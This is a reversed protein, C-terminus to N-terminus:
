RMKLWTARAASSTARAGIGLRRLAEALAYCAAASQQYVRATEATSIMEPAAKGDDMLRGVQLAAQLGLSIETQMDALKKQVLQTAALPRGFQNRELTCRRAAHWCFEAAGM